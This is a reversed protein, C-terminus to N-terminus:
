KNNFFIYLICHFIFMKLDNQTESALFLLHLRGLLIPEPEPELEFKLYTGAGAILFRPESQSRSRLVAM